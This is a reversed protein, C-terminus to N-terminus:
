SRRTSAFAVSRWSPCIVHDDEGREARRCLADRRVPRLGVGQRVVADADAAPAEKDLKAVLAPTIRPEVDGRAKFYEARSLLYRRTVEDYPFVGALAGWETTMNSITLREEISLRAVGPGAFEVCCNLVEDHNFVGILTIIVDKGTVGPRLEGTLNVRVIEPVQWWTRGTAWIAAADTRVVPTGLAGLAGYLNSHSDSGVVFSGPLVFGEEVMVQHGIGRGAPYFAVDHELAFERIRAYKELNERSQNQIDHDLAYVPQDSDAVKTAGMAKFKPIVASTNDHTMVHAPRISLYDDVHVEAGKPLGVAYRQAIKEVLTQPM